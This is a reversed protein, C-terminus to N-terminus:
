VAIQKWRGLSLMEVSVKITAKEISWMLYVWELSLKKLQNDYPAHTAAKEVESYSSDGVPALAFAPTPDRTHTTLAAPDPVDM